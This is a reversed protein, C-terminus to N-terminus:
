FQTQSQTHRGFSDPNRNGFLDLNINLPLVAGLCVQKARRNPLAQSRLAHLACVANFCCNARSAGGVPVLRGILGTREGGARM